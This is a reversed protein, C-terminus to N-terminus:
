APLLPLGVAESVRRVRDDLSLMALEPIAVRMHLAWSVHLADLSRIPELPFPQRARAVIAPLLALVDWKAAASTLDSSVSTTVTSTMRGEANARLIARDCEIITLDSTVVHTAATLISGIEPGRQEKLLWAAVASSEAYINM